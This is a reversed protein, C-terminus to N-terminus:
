KVNTNGNLKIREAYRANRFAADEAEVKKKLFNYIITYLKNM